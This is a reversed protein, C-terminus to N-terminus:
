KQQMLQKFNVKGSFIVSSFTAFSSAGEKFFLRVVSRVHFANHCGGNHCGDESMSM